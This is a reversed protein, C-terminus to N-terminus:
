SAVQKLQLFPQQQPVWREQSHNRTRGRDTHRDGRAAVSRRGRQEEYDPPPSPAGEDESCRRSASRSESKQKPDLKEMVEQARNHFLESTPADSTSVKTAAFNEIAWLFIMLKHASDPAEDDPHETMQPGVPLAKMVEMAIRGARQPINADLNSDIIEFSKPHIWFTQAQKWLEAGPFEKEESALDLARQERQHPDFRSGSSSTWM